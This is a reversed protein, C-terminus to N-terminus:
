ASLSWMAVREAEAIIPAGNNNIRKWTALDPPSPSRSAALDQIAFQAEEWLGVLDNMPDSAPWFGRRLALDDFWPRLAGNATDVGAEILSTHTFATATRLLLLARALMHLPSAPLAKVGALRLLELRVPERHGLLFDRQCMHRIAGPLQDYRNAIAGAAIDQGPSTIEHQQVFISRILHRDLEDFGASGSPEFLRWTQEIFRLTAPVSNKIPNLSHAAYSSTNRSNKEELGRKLDVGWSRIIQGVTAVQMFGPWLSELADRLPVGQFRILDLFLQSQVPDASWTDLARWVIEHTGVGKGKAAKATTGPDIRSITNPGTVVFNLGNFLGVGMNSLLCLGARLQAYYAMHRAGHADGALLASISRAAFTWGDVCHTPISIAVADILQQQPLAAAVAWKMGLEGHYAPHRAPLWITPLRGAVMSLAGIVPARTAAGLLAPNLSGAM